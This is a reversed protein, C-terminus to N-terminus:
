MPNLEGYTESSFSKYKRTEDVDPGVSRQYVEEMITKWLKVPVGGTLPSPTEERSLGGAANQKPEADEPSSSSDFFDRANVMMDQKINKFYASIVEVTRIFLPGNKTHYAKELTRLLPENSLTEPTPTSRGAGLAPSLARSPSPSARASTPVSLLSPGSLSGLLM